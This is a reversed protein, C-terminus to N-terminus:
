WQTVSMKLIVIVFFVFCVEAEVSDLLKEQVGSTWVTFLRFGHLPAICYGTISFLSGPCSRFARTPAGLSEFDM